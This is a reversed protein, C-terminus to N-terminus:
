LYGLEELRNTMREQARESVTGESRRRERAVHEDVLSALRDAVAPYETVVNHLENPDTDLDFLQRIDRDRGEVFKWGDYRVGDLWHSRDGTTGVARVHAPRHDIAGTLLDQGAVTDPGDLGAASLLTPFIDVQRVQDSVRRGAPIGPGALAFPVRTLFDYVHYGHGIRHFANPFDVGSFRRLSNYWDEFEIGRDHLYREYVEARIDRTRMETFPVPLQNFVMVSARHRRTGDQVSEGHDGIVAVITEDLDVADLLADLKATVGRVSADYEVEAPTADPPLDRHVHVEWLHLYTFFPTSANSLEREFDDFWETYVTRDRRRYDYRDFGTDLDTDTTIPGTVSASTEYGDAAFREALTTVEDSLAFDRLSLVGHTPPYTGTMYSAVCPTTSSAAAITTDFVTGTREFFEFFPKHSGYEGLAFDSRLADICVLLVNPRDTAM